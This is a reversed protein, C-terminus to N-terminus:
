GRPETDEGGPQTEPMKVPQLDLCLGVATVVGKDALEGLLQHEENDSTLYAQSIWYREAETLLRRLAAVEKTSVEVFYPVIEKRTLLPRATDLYDDDAHRRGDALDIAQKLLWRGDYGPNERSFAVGLGVQHSGYHGIRVGGDATFCYQLEHDTM